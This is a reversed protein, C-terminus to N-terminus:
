KLISIRKTNQKILNRGFFTSNNKTITLILHILAEPFIIVEVGVSVLVDVGVVRSSVFRFVSRITLRPYTIALLGPLDVGYVGYWDEALVKGIYFM